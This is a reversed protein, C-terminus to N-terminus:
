FEVAQAHGHCAKSRGKRRSRLATRATEVIKRANTSNTSLADGIESYDIGTSRLLIATRQRDSLRALGRDAATLCEKLFVHHEASISGAALAKPFESDQEEYDFNWRRNRRWRDRGLNNIVTAWFAVPRQLAPEDLEHREGELVRVCADGLLDEAEALNGHTWRLCIGLLVSREDLWPAVM